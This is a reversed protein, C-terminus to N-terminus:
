ADRRYRRLRRLNRRDAATADHGKPTELLKPVRAFRADTVLQRFPLPGLRGKGIDAHRDRHSGRDFVSDNLHFLRLREIGIVDGFRDMVGSYDDRLDYGAAWVHCTDFCVGIQPRYRVSVGDIMRALEEFRAGLATGAGATTELLVTGAFGTEEIAREIAEANRVLAGSRESGMANGPHTVVAHFGLRRCRDLEAAFAAFSRDFLIRDPSGLNILYSDHCVLTGIGHTAVAAAFTAVAGDDIAPEAWRSPQKTFLQLAQSPLEAARGPANVM